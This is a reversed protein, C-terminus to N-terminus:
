HMKVITIAENGMTLFIGHKKRQLFVHFLLRLNGCSTAYCVQKMSVKISNLNEDTQLEDVNAETM